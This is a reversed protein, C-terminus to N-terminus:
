NGPFLFWFFNLVLLFYDIPFLQRTKPRFEGGGLIPFRIFFEKESRVHGGTRKMYTPWWWDISVEAPQRKRRRRHWAMYKDSHRCVCTTRAIWTKWGRFYFLASRPKAIRQLFPKNLGDQIVHREWQSFVRKKARSLFIFLRHITCLHM